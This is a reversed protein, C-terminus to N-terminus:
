QSVRRVSSSSFDIIATNKKKENEYNMNKQKENMLIKPLLVFNISEIPKGKKNDFSVFPSNRTLGLLHSLSIKGSFVM